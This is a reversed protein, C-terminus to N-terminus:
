SADNVAHGCSILWGAATLCRIGLRDCGTALSMRLVDTRDETVVVVEVDEQAYEHAMAAVYVGSNEPLELGVMEHVEDIVYELCHVAAQERARRRRVTAAWRVAPHSDGALRSAHPVVQNPFCIRGADVQGTMWDFVGAPDLAREHVQLLAPADLVAVM